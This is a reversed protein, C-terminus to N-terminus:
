FRLNPYKKRMYRYHLVYYVIAIFCGVVFISLLIVIGKFNTNQTKVYVSYNLVDEGHCSMLYLEQKSKNRKIAVTIKDGASISNLVDRNAKRSVVCDIILPDDYEEVSIYYYKENYRGRRVITYGVFTCEEYVLDSKAPYREKTAAYFVLFASFFIFVLVLILITVGFDNMIPKSPRKMRLPEM